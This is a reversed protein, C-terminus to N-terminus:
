GGSNGSEQNKRLRGLFIEIEMAEKEKGWRLSCPSGITLTLLASGIGKEREIRSDEKCHRSRSCDIISLALCNREKKFIREVIMVHMGPRTTPMQDIVKPQYNLPLYVLLDGPLIHKASLPVSEWYPNKTEGRALSQFLKAYHFPCPIEDLSPPLYRHNKMFLVLSEYAKESVKKALLAILSATPITPLLM